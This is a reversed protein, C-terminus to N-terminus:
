FHIPKLKVDNFKVYQFGCMFIHVLMFPLITYYEKISKYIWKENRSKVIFFNLIELQRGVSSFTPRKLDM